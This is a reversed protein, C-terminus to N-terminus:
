GAPPKPWRVFDAYHYITEYGLGLYLPAGMPSAQLTCSSAGHEFALNTAAVTVLAGLGSTRAVPVTGVWQLSAVADSEYVMAAAVPEGDRRAVVIHAAPDEIVLAVEDFLDSLAEAPMGYTAYAQANVAIFDRVGVEDDIVSEAVGNLPTPDPLPRHRIM